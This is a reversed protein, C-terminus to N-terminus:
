PVYELGIVDYEYEDNVNGSAFTAKVTVVRTEESHAGNVLTNIASTLTLEVSSAIAAIATASLLTNGTGKDHVEWTASAPAALAGTKDYFSVTLYAISGEKVTSNAM